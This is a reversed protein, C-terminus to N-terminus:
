HLIFVDSFWMQLRWQILLGLMLVIVVFSSKKIM